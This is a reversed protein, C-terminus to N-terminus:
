PARALLKGKPRVGSGSQFLLYKSHTHTHTSAFDPEEMAMTLLKDTTAREGVTLFLHFFFAIVLPEREGGDIPRDGLTLLHVSEARKGLHETHQLPNRRIDVM